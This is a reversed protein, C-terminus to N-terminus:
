EEPECNKKEFNTLPLTKFSNRFLFIFTKEVFPSEYEGEFNLSINSISIERIRVYSFRMVKYQLFSEFSACAWISNEKNAMISTQYNDHCIYYFSYSSVLLCLYFNLLKRNVNIIYFLKIKVSIDVTSQCVYLDFWGLIAFSAINPLNMIKVMNCLSWTNLVILQKALWINNKM